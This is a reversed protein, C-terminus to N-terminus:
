ILWRVARSSHNWLNSCGRSRPRRTDTGREAQAILDSLAPLNFTETSGSLLTRVELSEVVFVGGTRPRSRRVRRQSFGM